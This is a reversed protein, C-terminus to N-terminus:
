EQLAQLTVPEDSNNLVRASHNTSVKNITCANNNNNPAIEIIKDATEALKEVDQGDLSVLISRVSEPM